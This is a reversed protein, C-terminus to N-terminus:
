RFFSYQMVFYLMQGRRYSNDFEEGSPLRGIYHIAVTDGYVPYHTADGPILTEMKVADSEEQQKKDRHADARNTLSM